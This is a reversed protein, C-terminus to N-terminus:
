GRRVLASDASSTNRLVVQRQHHLADRRDPTSYYRHLVLSAMGWVRAGVFVVFSATFATLLNADNRDLTLTQGLVSGRSWDTWIGLRVQYQVTLDENAGLWAKIATYDM